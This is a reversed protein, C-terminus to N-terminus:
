SSHGRWRTAASLVALAAVGATSTRLVPDGLKCVRAGAAAFSALEEPSIGGEPGVVVLAEGSAPPALEALRVEGDEHLVVALDAAGVREALAATDLPGSVEPLWARRAQKTAARATAAWREGTRDTWKAVSRAAAWGLVADVGLETMAEVAAEDRGGKALAQVVVFRPEAAPVRRRETVDVVIRGRDAEAVIGRAVVGAGDGLDVIEGARIRRVDHAHRGEAGAVVVSDAALAERTVLFLPPTM